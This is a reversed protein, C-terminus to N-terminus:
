GGEGPVIQRGQDLGTGFLGVRHRGAEGVEARQRCASVWSLSPWALSARLRIRWSSAPCSFLQAAQGQALRAVGQPQMLLRHAVQLRGQFVGGSPPLGVEPQRSDRCARPLSSCAWCSSLRATSMEGLRHLEGATQRLHAQLAVVVGLGLVHQEDRM